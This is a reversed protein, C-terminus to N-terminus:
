AEFSLDPMDVNLWMEYGDAFNALTFAKPRDTVQFGRKAIQAELYQRQQELGEETRGRDSGFGRTAGVAVLREPVQILQLEKSNPKPAPGPPLVYALSSDSNGTDM